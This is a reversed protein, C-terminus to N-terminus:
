AGFDELLKVAQEWTEATIGRAILERDASRLASVPVDSTMLLEDGEFLGIVGNYEALVYGRKAMSEESVRERTDEDFRAAAAISAAGGVAALSLALLLIWMRNRM